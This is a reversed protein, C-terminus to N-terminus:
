NIIVDRGCAFVIFCNQCSLCCRPWFMYHYLLTLLISLQVHSLSLVRSPTLQEWYHLTHRDTNHHLCAQHQPLQPHLICVLWSRCIWSARWQTGPSHTDGTQSTFPWGQDDHCTLDSFNKDWDRCPMSRVFNKLCRVSRLCRPMGSGM